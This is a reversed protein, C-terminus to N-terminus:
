EKDLNATLCNVAKDPSQRKAHPLHLVWAGEHCPLAVM